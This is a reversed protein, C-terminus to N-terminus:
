AATRNIAKGYKVTTVAPPDSSGTLVQLMEDMVRHRTHYGDDQIIVQRAVRTICNVVLPGMLNATMDRPSGSPVTVVSFVIVPTDTQLGLARADADSITPAYTPRFMRPELVPFALSPEDLSQLWRFASQADPRIVVFRNYKEFGILGTTFEIVLDTEVKISGFRTTKVTLYPLTEASPISEAAAVVDLETLDQCIDIIMLNNAKM